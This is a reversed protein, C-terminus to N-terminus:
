VVVMYRALVERFEALSRYTEGQFMEQKLHSFFNEMAVNDYCSGRRSMSQVAGHYARLVAM